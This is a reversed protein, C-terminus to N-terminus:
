CAGGIAIKNLKVDSRIEPKHNDVTETSRVKPSISNVLKVADM